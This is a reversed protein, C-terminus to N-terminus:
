LIPRSRSPRGACAPFRTNTQGDALQRCQNGLTKDTARMEPPAVYGVMTGSKGMMLEGAKSPHLM